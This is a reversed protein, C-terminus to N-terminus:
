NGGKETGPCVKRFVASFNSLFVLARFSTKATQILMRELGALRVWGQSDGQSPQKLSLQTTDALIKQVHDTLTHTLCLTHTHLSMSLLEVIKEKKVRLMWRLNEEEKSGVAKALLVMSYQWVVNMASNCVTDNVSHVMHNVTDQWNKRALWIRRNPRKINDVM